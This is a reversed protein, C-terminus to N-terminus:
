ISEIAPPCHGLWHLPSLHCHSLSVPRPNSSDQGVDAEVVLGVLGVWGFKVLWSLGVLVVLDLWGM